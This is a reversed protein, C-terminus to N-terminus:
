KWLSGIRVGLEGMVRESSRCLGVHAALWQNGVDLLSNMQEHELSQLVDLIAVANPESQVAIDKPFGFSRLDPGVYIPVRGCRVVDILKESVYDASNEIVISVPALSLADAKEAISGQWHRPAAGIGGAAEWFRPVQSALTAKALARAALNV